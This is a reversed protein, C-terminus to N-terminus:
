NHKKLWRDIGGFFASALEWAIRLVAVAIGFLFLFAVVSLALTIM